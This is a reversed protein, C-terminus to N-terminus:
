PSPLPTSPRELRASVRRDIRLANAIVVGSSFPMLLAATLPGIFGGAALSVAFVNYGIAFRINRRLARETEAASARAAALPALADDLIVVDAFDLAAVAGRGMAVSVDAAALAPADNLGDGAVLVHAGERQLARVHTAKGEPTQRGRADTIGLAGGIEAVVDHQDGSLMTVPAGLRDLTARADARAADRLRITGVCVDDVWVDVATGEAHASREVRVQSEHVRGAVGHGLTVDLDRARWLPLGRAELEHVIARAIPHTSGIELPAAWRLADDSADLVRPRGETVTGTKDVVIHSVRALRELADGDRVFAGRRAAAGIGSAIAAPTALALACPCAVVLVAVVIPLAADFGATATWAAGVLTAVAIVALTFVPAIRQARDTSASRRQLADRVLQGIRAMTSRAPAATVRVDLQGDVVRAGAALADGEGVQIPESEGSVHSADIWAHGRLAVGDAILITGGGAVLVDGELIEDRSVERLGGAERRWATEPADRLVREAAEEAAIRGRSVAVQGGLLLTILMTLSDLYSPQAHQMAWFAHAYMVLIAIAVPVDMSVVAHRLGTIAREFFPAAAYLVAPTALVLSALEFLRSYHAAMDGSFMGLYVAAQIFMVNMACFAAVGLRHLLDRDPRARTDASRLEYGLQHVRTAIASLPTVDPRWRLTALGTGYSVHAHEVGPLAAIARENLWVCAACRIGGIRLHAEATGDDCAHVHRAAFADGDFHSVDVAQPRPSFDERSTYFREWGGERIISAVTECGACCFADGDPGVIADRPDIAAGCHVCCADAAASSM